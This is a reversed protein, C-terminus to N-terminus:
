VGPKIGLAALLKAPDYIAGDKVTLVVRRIDSMKQTPDGDVLSFDALKGPSAASTPTM